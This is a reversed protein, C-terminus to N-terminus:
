DFQMIWSDFSACLMLVDGMENVWTWGLKVFLAAWKDNRMDTHIM